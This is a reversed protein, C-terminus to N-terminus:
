SQEGPTSQPVLRRVTAITARTSALLEPDDKVLRLQEARGLAALAGEPDGAELLAKALHQCAFDELDALEPREACDRAIDRLERAAAEAQGRLALVDARRIRMQHVQRSTGGEQALELAEDLIQQALTLEKAVAASVGALGLWRAAVGPEGAEAARQQYWDVAARMEVPDDPVARLGDPMSYGVNFPADEV